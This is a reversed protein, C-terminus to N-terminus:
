RFTGVKESPDGKGIDSIKSSASFNRCNESSNGNSIDSIRSLTSFKRGNELPDVQM